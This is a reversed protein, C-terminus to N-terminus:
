AMVQRRRTGVRDSQDSRSSSGVKPEFATRSLAKAHRDVLAVVQRQVDAAIAGSRVSLQLLDLPAPAACALSRMVLEAVDTSEALMQLNERQRVSLETAADAHLRHQRDLGDLWLRAFEQYATTMKQAQTETLMFPHFYM